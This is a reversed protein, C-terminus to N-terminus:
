RNSMHRLFVHPATGSTQQHEKLGEARVAHKFYYIDRVVEEVDSCFVDLGMAFVNYM